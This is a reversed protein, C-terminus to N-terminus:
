AARAVEAHSLRQDCIPCRREEYVYPSGVFYITHDHLRAFGGVQRRLKEREGNRPYMVGGGYFRAVRNRASKMAQSLNFSTAKVAQAVAQLRTAIAIFDAAHYRRLPRYMNMESFIGEGSHLPIVVVLLLSQGEVFGM